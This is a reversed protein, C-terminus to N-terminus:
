IINKMAKAFNDEFRHNEMLEKRVKMGYEKRREDDELWKRSVEKFNKENFSIPYKKYIGYGGNCEEQLLIKGKCMILLGHTIPFIYNKYANFVVNIRTDMILKDRSDGWKYEIPINFNRCLKKRRDTKVGFTFFNQKEEMEIMTDFYKSYGLPFYESNEDVMEPYPELIKTWINKDGCYTLNQETQILINTCNSDPIVRHGRIFINIKGYKIIESEKCDYIIHSLKGGLDKKPMYNNIEVDYGHNLLCDRIAYVMECFTAMKGIIIIHIKTSM